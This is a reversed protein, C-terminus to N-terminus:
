DDEEESSENELEEKKVIKTTFKQYGPSEYNYIHKMASDYQDSMNPANSGSSSANNTNACVLGLNSTPSDNSHPSYYPSNTNRHTPSMCWVHKGTKGTYLSLPSANYHPSLPSYKLENGSSFAQGFVHPSSIPERQPLMPSMIQNINSSDRGDLTEGINGGYSMNTYGTTYGQHPSALRAGPSMGITQRPTMMSYTYPTFINPSIGGTISDYLRTQRNYFNTAPAPTNLNILPTQLYTSRSDDELEADVELVPHLDPFYKWQAAIKEKESPLLYYNDMIIDFSGTGMRSLQGVMVNETVGKLFDVDAYVAAETLIDVTEEFSCKRFPSQYVRNIGNRSISMLKGYSTITDALLAIHRYNVDINFFEFVVRIEKLIASRAAEIGFLPYIDWIHNSTTRRKDVFPLVLVRLLDTGSTELVFEGEKPGLIELGNASYKQVRQNRYSVKKCFGKIPMDELIFQEIKKTDSYNSEGKRLLRLRLIIPSATELSETIRLTNVGM